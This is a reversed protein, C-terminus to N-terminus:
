GDEDGEGLSVLGREVAGDAIRESVIAAWMRDRECASDLTSAITIIARNLKFHSDVDSLCATIDEVEDIMLPEGVLSSGIEFVFRALDSMGNKDM